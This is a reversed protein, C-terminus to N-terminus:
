PRHQFFGELSADDRKIGVLSLTKTIEEVDGYVRLTPSTYPKKKTGHMEKKGTREKGFQEM